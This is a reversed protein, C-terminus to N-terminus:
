VRRFSKSNNVVLLDGPELLDPLDHFVRHEMADSDRNLCLLGGADRPEGPEQAILEKPLYFDFESKLM